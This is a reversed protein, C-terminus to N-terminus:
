GCGHHAQFSVVLSEQLKGFRGFGVASATLIFSCIRGWKRRVVSERERSIQIYTCERLNISM